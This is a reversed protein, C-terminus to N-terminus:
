PPTRCRRPPRHGEQPAMVFYANILEARAKFLRAHIGTFLLAFVEIRTLKFAGLVLTDHEILQDVLLHNAQGGFVRVDNDTIGGHTVVDGANRRELAVALEVRVLVLHRQRLAHRRTRRRHELLQHTGAQLLRDNGGRQCLRTEGGLALGLTQQLQQAFRTVHFEGQQRHGFSIGGCDAIGIDLLPVVRVRLVEQLAFCHRNFVDLEICRVHRGNRRGIFGRQACTIFFLLCAKDAGILTQSRM